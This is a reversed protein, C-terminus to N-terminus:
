ICLQVHLQSSNLYFIFLYFGQSLLRVHHQQTVLHASHDDHPRHHRRARHAGAGLEQQDLVRGVVPDRDADVSHVDAPRLVRDSAATHVDGAPV